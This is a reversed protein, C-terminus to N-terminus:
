GSLSAFTAVRHRRGPRAVRPEAGNSAVFIQTAASRRQCRCTLVRPAPRFAAALSRPRVAPSSRVRRSGTGSDSTPRHVPQGSLGRGRDKLLRVEVPETNAHTLVTGNAQYHPIRLNWDVYNRLGQRRLELGWQLDPGSQNGDFPQYDHGVYHERRALYCFWGAPVSNRSPRHSTPTGIVTSWRSAGTSSVSEFPQRTACTSTSGPDPSTRSIGDTGSAPSCHTTLRGTPTATRRRPGPPRLPSRTSPSRRAATASDSRSCYCELATM